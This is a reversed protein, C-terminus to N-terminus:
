YEHNQWGSYVFINIYVSITYMYYYYFKPWIIKYFYGSIWQLLGCFIWSIYPATNKCTVAVTDTPIYYLFSPFTNYIYWFLFSAGGIVKGRERENVKERESESEGVKESESM